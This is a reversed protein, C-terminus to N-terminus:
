NIEVQNKNMLNEDELNNQFQGGFAEKKDEIIEPIFDFSKLEPWKGSMDVTVTAPQFLM